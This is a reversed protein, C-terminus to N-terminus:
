VSTIYARFLVLIPIIELTCLYLLIYFLDLPKSYFIQLLKMILFLYFIGALCATIIILPQQWNLPQYTYLILVPFVVVTLVNMLSFYMKKYMKTIKGNFLTYGTMDFLIHKLLYYGTTIGFLVAFTKFEFKDVSAFIMEYVVLAFVSITFITIFIQFQAINVTPSQFLNVPDKKSFFLKINQFFQGASRVIGVVLLLFLIVLTIFVWSETSPISPHPLGVLGSPVSAAMLLSDVRLLSDAKTLSDLLLSSDVKLLSLSDITHQISDQM